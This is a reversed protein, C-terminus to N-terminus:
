RPTLPAAAEAGSPSPVVVPGHVVHFARHETHDFPVLDAIPEPRAASLLSQGVDESQLLAIVVEVRRADLTGFVDDLLLLPV